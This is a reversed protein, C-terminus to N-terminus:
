FGWSGGRTIGTECCGRVRHRNIDHNGVHAPVADWSRKRSGQKGNHEIKQSGVEAVWEASIWAGEKRTLCVPM